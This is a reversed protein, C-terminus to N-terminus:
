VVRKLHTKTSKVAAEWLGGFEPADSPIFHWEIEPSHCFNEVFTVFQQYRFQNFLEKLKNNAGRFITANDSHLQIMGMIM